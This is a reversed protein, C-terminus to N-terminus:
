QFPIKIQIDNCGTYHRTEGAKGLKAVSKHKWTDLPVKAPKVSWQQAQRHKSDSSKAAEGPFHM